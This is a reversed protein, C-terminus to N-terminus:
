RGRKVCEKSVFDEFQKRSGNYVNIDVDGRIGAVRGDAALQWYLLRVYPKYEGYRAIWVPYRSLAAPAHEMYKNVFNQSVYLIPRTGCQQEVAHMWELVEHFLATIGGMAKIQRDYPEVDLVPPLDGRKPRAIRLFYRAQVKGSRRTSFFHYAGAPIGQRRAAAIDANYYRNRIYNSQTAKIYVFSVPYDQPGHIRKRSATGLSRIRMRKWDIGYVRRGIEHQYRSIDIGYVRDATYIIREGQFRGQKWIGAQVIDEGNVAFGFGEPRGAHWTGSYYLGEGSIRTGTGDPQLYRNLTGRYRGLSDTRTGCALTDGQWNGAFVASDTTLRGKGHRKGNRWMGAYTSGDHGRLIGYGEPMGNETRGCYRGAPLLLSGYAKGTRRLGAINQPMRGPTAVIRSEHVHDSGFLRNVACLTQSWIWQPWSREKFYLRRLRNDTVVKGNLRIGCLQGFLNVVAAGELQPCSLGATSDAHAADPLPQLGFYGLLKGGWRPVKTAFVTFSYAGEPLGNSGTQLLLLSDSKRNCVAACRFCEVSDAGAARNWTIRYAGQLRATRAPLALASDVKALLRGARAKQVAVSSRYAMVENYGDDIVTHTAAYYDLERSENKKREWLQLLRTRERQLWARVTDAPLSDAAFGLVAASTIVHGEGSVFFGSASATDPRLSDGNATCTRGQASLWLTDGPLLPLAYRCSGEVLCIGDLQRKLGSPFLATALLLALIAPICWLLLKLRRNGPIYKTAM